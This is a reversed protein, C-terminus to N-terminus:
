WDCVIIALNFSHVSKNSCSECSVDIVVLISPIVIKFGVRKSVSRAGNIGNSIGLVIQNM